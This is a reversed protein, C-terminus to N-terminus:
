ELYFHPCRKACKKFFIVFGSFFSLIQFIHKKSSRSAKESHCDDGRDNTISLFTNVHSTSYFKMNKGRSYYPQLPFPGPVVIRCIPVSLTFAKINSSTGHTRNEIQNCKRFPFSEYYSRFFLELIGISKIWPLIRSKRVCMKEFNKFFLCIQYFGFFM